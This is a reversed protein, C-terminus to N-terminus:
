EGSAGRRPIGEFKPETGGPPALRRSYEREILSKLAERVLASKVTLGTYERAVLVLDDDITVNM